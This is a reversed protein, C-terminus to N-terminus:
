CAGGGWVPQGQAGLQQQGVDGRQEDEEAAHDAVRLAGLPLLVARLDGLLEADQGLSHGCYPQEAIPFTTIVIIKTSISIM